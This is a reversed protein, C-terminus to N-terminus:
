QTLITIPFLDSNGWESWSGDYVAINEYGCEDAGLALISATVGSGCSFILEKINSKIKPKFISILEKKTKFISESMTETFPICKSSPIHGAKLGARPEPEIGNFRHISRADLIQIKNNNIASLVEKSSKIMSPNFKSEFNGIEIPTNSYEKTTPLDAEIWKPLGGNLVYVEKHGMIKFMWWARPSSFIGMADYIVIISKTSIGLERVSQQFKSPTPLMHPLDTNQDCIETDFNFRKAGLIKLAPTPISEGNPKKKMTADLVVLNSNTLNDSLWDISVINSDTDQSM